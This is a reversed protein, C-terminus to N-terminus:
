EKGPEVKRWGRQSVFSRLVAEAKAAKARDRSEKDTGIDPCDELYPSMDELGLGKGKKLYPSLSSIAGTMTRREDHIAGFPEIMSFALYWEFEDDSIREKMESVPIGM